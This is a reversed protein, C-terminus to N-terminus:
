NCHTERGNENKTEKEIRYKILDRITVLKMEFKRCFRMLDPLRAMTGDDNMIECIVGMPKMGALRAFDVACETHGDRDLVGNERAILPFIHGPRAFAEPRTDDNCMAIISNARDGASIGTGNGEILDISVTFPTAHESTNNKVMYDLELQQAKEKMIPTCILGRGHKAMFNIAEPTVLEAAMVLDGENERDEDDVVVIMKGLSIDEIAEEISNFPNISM